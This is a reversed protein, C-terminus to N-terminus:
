ASEGRLAKVLYPDVDPQRLLWSKYDSPIAAIPEGKHKGFPMVTPVRAKESFQWLAEISEPRIMKCMHALIDVCMDVDAGANHANRLRQAATEPWLRYMIAGQTHSDMDPWMKRAMALTCIRRVNPSGLVKWDFDINHGILYETGEPIKAQTHPPCGELDELRIHHTAMAGFAIPKSPLYRQCFRSEEPSDILGDVLAVDRHALEICQPEDIGTTETDLVRIM